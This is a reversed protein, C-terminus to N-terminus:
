LHMEWCKLEQFVARGSEFILGLTGTPQLPFSYCQILRDDLYLELMTRRLLLRFYHSKGPEIGTNIRFFPDFYGKVNDDMSGFETLQRTELMIGIGQNNESNCEIFVGIGAWRRPAENIELVGELIIGKNLNFLNRLMIIGGNITEDAEIRNATIKWELTRRKALSEDPEHLCNANFFVARFHAKSLDISIEKGKVRDNGKWYSLYLHKDNDIEVKKLPAMWIRQGQGTIEFSHHNVLIEDSIPYFRTFYTGNSVLFRYSNKDPRFPGKPDSSVFCYMGKSRLRGNVIAQAPLLCDYVQREGLVRESFGVLMYYLDGIKQVAGVEGLNMRPWDGWDFLPPKIANWCTGDESEVMGVSEFTMGPTQSWPRATLYGWFGKNAKQIAWIADWRGSLTDDYWRPDPDSRLEDGMRKWHILDSSKAFYIAQVGNREESFNLIFKDGSKWVAGTGLWNADNRKQLIPGIEKYHVGDTSIALSVGDSVEGTSKHLYFLYHM